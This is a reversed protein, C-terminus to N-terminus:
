PSMRPILRVRPPLWVRRREGARMGVLGAAWPRPLDALALVLPQGDELRGTLM